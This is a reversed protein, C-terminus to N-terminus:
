ERWSRLAHKAASMSSQIRSSRRGAPSQVRSADRWRNLYTRTWRSSLQPGIDALTTECDHQTGIVLFINNLTRNFLKDPRNSKRRGLGVSQRRREEPMRGAQLNM